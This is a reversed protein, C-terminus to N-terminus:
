LNSRFDAPKAPDSLLARYRDDDELFVTLWALGFRGIDGDTNAPDNAVEHPAGNVEYLMKPTTEPMSEFFGQSQGAAVADNKSM